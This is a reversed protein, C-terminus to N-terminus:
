LSYIITRALRGLWFRRFRVCLVGSPCAIENEINNNQFSGFHCLSGLLWHERRATPRCFPLNLIVAYGIMEVQVLPLSIDFGHPSVTDGTSRGVARIRKLVM